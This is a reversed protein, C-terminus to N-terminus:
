LAGMPVEKAAPISRPGKTFAVLRDEEFFGLASRVLVAMPM